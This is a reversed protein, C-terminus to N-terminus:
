ESNVCQVLQMAQDWRIRAFPRFADTDQARQVIESSVTAAFEDMEGIETLVYSKLKAEM